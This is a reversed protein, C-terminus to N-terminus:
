SMYRRETEDERCICSTDQIDIGYHTNKKNEEPRYIAVASIGCTCSQEGAAFIVKVNWLVPNLFFLLAM